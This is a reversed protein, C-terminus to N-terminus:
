LEMMCHMVEMQLNSSMCRMITQQQAACLSCGVDQICCLCKNATSPWNSNHLQPSETLLRLMMQVRKAHESATDQCAACCSHLVAVAALARLWASAQLRQTNQVTFGPM